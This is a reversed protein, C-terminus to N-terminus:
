NNGLIIKCEYRPDSPPVEVPKSAIKLLTLFDYKSKFLLSIFFFTM